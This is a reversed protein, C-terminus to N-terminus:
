TGIVTRDRRPLSLREGCAMRDESGRVAAVEDSPWRLPLFVSDSTAM